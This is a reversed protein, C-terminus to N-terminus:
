LFCVKGLFFVLFIQMEFAVRKRVKKCGEKSEFATTKSKKSRVKLMDQM